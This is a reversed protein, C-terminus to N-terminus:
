APAKVKRPASLSADLKFTMNDLAQLMEVAMLERELEERRAALAESVNEGQDHMRALGRAADSLANLTRSDHLLM